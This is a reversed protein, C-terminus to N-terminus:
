KQQQKLKFISNDIKEWSLRDNEFDDENCSQSNIKIFGWDAGYFNLGELKSLKALGLDRGHTCVQWRAGIVLWDKIHPVLKKIHKLFSDITYLAFSNAGLVNKQIVSSMVFNNCNKILELMVEQDFEQWNYAVLTNYVSPDNYDLRTSYGANIISDFNFQQLHAPLSELWRYYEPSYQTNNFDTEWLDICILGRIDM